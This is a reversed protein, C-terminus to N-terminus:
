AEILCPFNLGQSYVRQIITVYERFYSFRHSFSAIVIATLFCGEANTVTTSRCRLFYVRSRLYPFIKGLKRSFFQFHQWRPRQATHRFLLCCHCFASGLSPKLVSSGNLLLDKRQPCPVLLETSTQLTSPSPQLLFSEVRQSAGALWPSCTPIYANRRHRYGNHNCLVNFKGEGHGTRQQHDQCWWLLSFTLSEERLAM